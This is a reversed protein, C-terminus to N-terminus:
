TPFTSDWDRLASKGTLVFEGNRVLGGSYGSADGVYEFMKWSTIHRDALGALPQRNIARVAVVGSKKKNKPPAVLVADIGARDDM